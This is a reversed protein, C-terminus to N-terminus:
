DPGKKQKSTDSALNEDPLDYAIIQSDAVGIVVPKRDASYHVNSGMNTSTKKGPILAGIASGVVRGAFAGSKNGPHFRNEIENAAMQAPLGVGSAAPGYRVALEGAIGGIQEGTKAIKIGKKGTVTNHYETHVETKTDIEKRMEGACVLDRRDETRQSIEVTDTTVSLMGVRARQRYSSSNAPFEVKAHRISCGEADPSPTESVITVKPESPRENPLVKADKSFEAM